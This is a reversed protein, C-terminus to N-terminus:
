AKSAFLDVICYSAKEEKSSPEHVYIINNQYKEPVFDHLEIAVLSAIHKGSKLDDLELILETTINKEANYTKEVDSLERTYRVIKNSNYFHCFVAAIIVAVLILLKGKM